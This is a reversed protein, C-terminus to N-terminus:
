KRLLLLTNMCFTFFHSLKVELLAPTINKPYAAKSFSLCFHNLKWTKQFSPLPTFSGWKKQFIPLILFTLIVSLYSFCSETTLKVVFVESILALFPLSKSWISRLPENEQIEPLHPQGCIRRKKRKPKQRWLWNPLATPMEKGVSISRISQNSKKTMLPQKDLVEM